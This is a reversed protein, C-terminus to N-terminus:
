LQNDWWWWYYTSLFWGIILVINFNIANVVQKCLSIGDQWQRGYWVMSICVIHWVIDVWDASFCIFNLLSVHLLVLSGLSSLWSLSLHSSKTKQKIPVHLRMEHRVHMYTGRVCVSGDTYTQTKCEWYFCSNFAWGPRCSECLYQPLLEEYETWDGWLLLHQTFHTIYKSYINSKVM